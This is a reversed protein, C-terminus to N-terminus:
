SAGAVIDFGTVFRIAEPDGVRSWEFRRLVTPHMQRDLELLKFSLETGYRGDITVYLREPTVAIGRCWNKEIEDLRTHEAQLDYNFLSGDHEDPERAVIIKGDISTFFYAGDVFDGDHICTPTCYNLTRLRCITRERNIVLLAGLNRATLVIEGDIMQVNNLHFYGCSGSWPKTLFRWDAERDFGDRRVRLERDIWFVDECRGAHDMVAVLDKFPVATVIRERDVHFRHLYCTYPSTILAKVEKTQASLRYIGNWSGAYLSDGVRELGTFGYRPFREVTVDREPLQGVVPYPLDHFDRGNVPFLYSHVEQEAMGLTWLAPRKTTAEQPQVDHYGHVFSVCVPQHLPATEISPADAVLLDVSSEM